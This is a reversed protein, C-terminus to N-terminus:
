TPALPGRRRRAARLGARAAALVIWSMLAGVVGVIVLLGGIAQGLGECFEDPDCPRSEVAVVAIGWVAVVVSLVGGLGAVIGVLVALVM